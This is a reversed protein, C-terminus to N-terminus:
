RLNRVEEALEVFAEQFAKNVKEYQSPIEDINKQEKANEELSKATEFIDKSMGIFDISPKIKHTNLHLGEWDQSLLCEKMKELYPPTEILIMEVMQLLFKPNNPSHSKLYTLDCSKM